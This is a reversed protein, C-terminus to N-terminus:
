KKAMAKTCEICVFGYRKHMSSGPAQAEHKGCKGCSKTIGSGQYIPHNTKYKGIASDARRLAPTSTTM